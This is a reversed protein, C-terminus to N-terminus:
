KSTNVCSISKVVLIEFYFCEEHRLGLLDGKGVTKMDRFKELCVCLGSATM